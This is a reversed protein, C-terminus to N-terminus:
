TIYNNQGRYTTGNQGSNGAAAGGGGSSGGSGGTVTYTGSDAGLASYLVVINAGGGGGGGSSHTAGGGGTGGNSGNSGQGAITGTTFTYTGGCEIYLGAAGRGGAGGGVGSFGNAGGSVGNSGNGGPYARLAYPMAAPVCPGGLIMFSSSGAGGFTAGSSGASTGSAGGMGGITGDGASSPSDVIVNATGLGGGHSRLDIVASSNSTLTVAGQSRLVIFTGTTSNSGSFALNGTGTISISTYNKEFYTASGLALTTTGSSISLAGDAGTGGFKPVPGAQWAPVGGATATLVYTSAGIPLRSLTTAGSAYLLDGTAFGLLGTGGKPVSVYQISSDNILGSRTINMKLQTDLIQANAAIGSNTLPVASTYINPDHHHADLITLVDAFNQNVQAARAKTNAVFSYTVTFPLSM